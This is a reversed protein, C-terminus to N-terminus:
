SAVGREAEFATTLVRDGQRLLGRINYREGNWIVRDLESLDALTYITFTVVFTANTRGEDRGERGTKAKAAAWIFHVDPVWTETFGGMGDAVRTKREITIPQDMRGATMGRGM